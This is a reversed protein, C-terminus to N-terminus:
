EDPLIRVPVCELFFGPGCLSYSWVINDLLGYCAFGAQDPPLGSSATIHVFEKFYPESEYARNKVYNPHDFSLAFRLCILIPGYFKPVDNRFEEYPQGCLQVCIAQLLRTPSLFTCGLLAIRRHSVQLFAQVLLVSPSSTFDHRLKRSNRHCCAQWRTPRTLRLAAYGATRWSAFVSHRM